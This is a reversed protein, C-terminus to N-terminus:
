PAPQSSGASHPRRQTPPKLQGTSRSSPPCLPTAADSQSDGSLTGQSARTPVKGSSQPHYPIHLKWVIGLSQTVHQIICSIFAPGNDSQITNPLSFRPIIEQLLLSAATEATEKATPFAEIWGQARRPHYPDSFGPQM